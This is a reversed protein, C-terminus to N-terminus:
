KVICLSYLGRSETFRCLDIATFGKRNEFIIGDLNFKSIYTAPELRILNSVENVKKTWIQLEKEILKNKKEIDLYKRMRLNNFHSDFLSETFESTTVIQGLLYDNLLAREIIELNSIPYFVTAEKSFLVKHKTVLVTDSAFIPPVALIKRQDTQNLFTSSNLFNTFMEQEIPTNKRLEKIYTSYTFINLALILAVTSFLLAKFLIFKSLYLDLSVILIIFSVVYALNMGYASNYAHKGTFIQHNMGVFTCILVVPLYNVINGRVKQSRCVYFYFPLVIVILILAEFGGPLRSNIQGSRWLTDKDITNNPNYLILYFLGAGFFNGLLSLISGIKLRMKEFNIMVLFIHSLLITIAVIPQAFWTLISVVSLWFWTKAGVTQNLIRLALYLFALFLTIGTSPAVPRLYWWPFFNFTIGIYILALISSRKSYIQFIAKTLIYTLVVLIVVNLLYGTRLSNTIASFFALIYEGIFTYGGPGMFKSDFYPNIISLNGSLVANSRSFYHLSDSSIPYFFNGQITTWIFKPAFITVTSPVVLILSLVPLILITFKSFKNKFIQLFYM